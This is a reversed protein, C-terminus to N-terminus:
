GFGGGSYKLPDFKVSKKPKVGAIYYKTVDVDKIVVGEKSLSNLINFCYSREINLDYSIDDILSRGNIQLYVLINKLRLARTPGHEKHGEPLSYFTQLPSRNIEGDKILSCLITSCDCKSCKLFTVVEERTVSLKEKIFELCIDKRTIKRIRSM